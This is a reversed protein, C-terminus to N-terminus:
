VGPLKAVSAATEVAGASATARMSSVVDATLKMDDILPRAVLLAVAASFVLLGFCASVTAIGIRGLARPSSDAAVSAFLLSIVLPVVTMQLAAVWISGVPELFTAVSALAPSGAARILSGAILGALLGLVM